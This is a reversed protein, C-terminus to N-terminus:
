VKTVPFPTVDKINEKMTMLMVLRDFGVGFGGHPLYINKRLNIYKEYEEGSVKREDMKRKLVEYEHERISGGAIEYGFPALIDFNEVTIRSNVSGDTRKMYFPTISEPFNTIAIIDKDFHKLLRREQPESLRKGWEFVKDQKDSGSDTENLINVAQDYTILKINAKSQFDILYRLFVLHVLFDKYKDNFNNLYNVYDGHKQLIYTACGRVMEQILNIMGKLSADPLEAEIMWFENAHRITDSREARFSPGIKWVKGLGYCAFELEMQGTSSLNVPINKETNESGLTDLNTGDSATKLTLPVLNECNMHTLCPTDVETFNKSQFFEHIYSKIASRIGIISRFQKNRFRFHTYKRLYEDSYEINPIVPNELENESYKHIKLKHEPNDHNIYLDFDSLSRESPVGRRKDITGAAYIHDGNKLLELEKFNNAKNVVIQLNALTSGDNIDIFYLNQSNIRRIEQVYGRTNVTFPVGIPTNSEKCMNLCQILESITVSNKELPNVTKCDTSTCDNDVSDLESVNNCQFSAHDQISFSHSVGQKFNDNISNNERFNCLIFSTNLNNHFKPRFGSASSFPQIFVLLNVFIKCFIILIFM